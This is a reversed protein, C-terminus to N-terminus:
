MPINWGHCLSSNETGTKVDQSWSALARSVQASTSSLIKATDINRVIDKDSDDSSLLLSSLANFLKGM